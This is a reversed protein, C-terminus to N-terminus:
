EESAPTTEEADPTVDTTETSELSPAAEPSATDEPLASETPSASETPLASEDPGYTPTPAPSASPKQTATGPQPADFDFEDYPVTYLKYVYGTRGGPTKVKIWDGQDSIVELVTGHDLTGIIDSSTSAGSRLKLPVTSDNLKVVRKEAAPEGTTTGPGATETEGEPPATVTESPVPSPTVLSSPKPWVLRAHVITRKTSGEDANCTSLTLIRDEATFEVTSDKFMGKDRLRNLYEIYEEDSGFNHSRYDPDDKNTIYVSFVEFRFTGYLTDLYIRRNTDFFAQTGLTTYYKLKGFMSGNTMNHGHIITNRGMPNLDNLSTMFLAGAASETGNIDHKLYYEADDMVVPYNVLNPVYLWGVVDSNKNEYLNWVDNQRNVYGDDIEIQTPEYSTQPRQPIVPNNPDFVTDPFGTAFGGSPRDPAVTPIEGSLEDYRKQTIYDNYHKDAYKFGCFLVVCVLAVVFFSYSLNYIRQRATKSKNEKTQMSRDNSHPRCSM